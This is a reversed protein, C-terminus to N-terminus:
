AVAEDALARAMDSARLIVDSVEVSEKSVHVLSSLAAGASASSSILSDEESTM